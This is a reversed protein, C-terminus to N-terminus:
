GIGVAYGLPLDSPMNLCDTIEERTKALPATPACEAMKELLVDSLMMSYYIGPAYELVTSSTSALLMILYNKGVAIEWLKNFYNIGICMQTVFAIAYEFLKHGLCEGVVAYGLLLDSAM